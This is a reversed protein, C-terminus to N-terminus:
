CVMICLGRPYLLETSWVCIQRSVDSNTNLQLSHCTRLACMVHYTHCAGAGALEQHVSANEPGEAGM